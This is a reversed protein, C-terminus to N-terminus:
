KAGAALGEILDRVASAADALSEGQERGGEFYPKTSAFLGLSEALRKVIEYMDPLEDKHSELFALGKLVTGRNDGTSTPRYSDPITKLLSSAQDRTNQLYALKRNADALQNELEVYHVSLVVMIMVVASTYAVHIFRSKWSPQAILLSLVSALSGVVTITFTGPVSSIIAEM